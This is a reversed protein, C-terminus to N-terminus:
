ARGMLQEIEKMQDDNLAGFQMAGANEITQAGTRIGPIPITRTSRAWIWALAGQALTRGRSTLIQRLADLKELTPTLWQEQFIPRSRLDDPQFKADAAYKGTIAGRALPTRNLSALGFEACVALVQPADRIVNLDHQIAVCHKGEAFVRAGEANDTSWGYFRINGEKVLEELADRVRGAKAPSYGNVHFQYLDICDLGLRRLSKECDQRLHDLVADDDYPEVRKAQEDVAYGFKTAVVAGDRRDALARGLVRESHGCGYNAATDFFTIGHELAAHIARLSEADDVVGWGAQNEQMRWPGGIAWCGMGLAGVEIGSSGLSRKM